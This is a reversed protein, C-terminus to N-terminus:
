RQFIIEIYFLHLIIHFTTSYRIICFETISGVLPPSQTSIYEFLHECLQLFDKFFSTFQLHVKLFYYAFFSLFFFIKVRRSPWQRFYGSGSGNTFPISGRIRIRVLLEHIRLVTPMLPLRISESHIPVSRDLYPLFDLIHRSLSWLLTTDFCRCFKYCFCDLNLNSRM